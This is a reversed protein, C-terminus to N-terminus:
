PKWWQRGYENTPDRYITHLHQTPDGGLRQPALEIWVAPGQIRFYAAGGPTTPGSWAFWTEALGAKIEAMKPDAAHDPLIGVWQRILSLLLTRQPENFTSVKVGEPVLPKLEQGPGLVLDRFQAGLIAQKRQSEDLANILSVAIDTEEGLARLSKGDLTFRAPQAATHSPALSGRDGALTINLALHHGGFQLMWPEKTSPAGLISVYFEDRGFVLKGSNGSRLTEDGEMIARVKEFGSKSLASALLAMVSERQKPTLDGLRVGAREYIGTPLNSWRARQEQNNFAFVAKARTPADLTALFAQAAAVTAAPGKANSSLGDAATTRVAIELLGTLLVAAAPFRKLNM